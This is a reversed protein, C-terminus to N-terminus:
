EPLSIFGLPEVILLESEELKVRNEKGIIKDVIDISSALYPLMKEKLNGPLFGLNEEVEVAPKVIIMKSYTNSNDQLLQLAVAIAIYSKGVGSPGSCFIIEKERIINAYEKQKTNKCKLIVKQPIIEDVRNTTGRKKQMFFTPQKIVWM